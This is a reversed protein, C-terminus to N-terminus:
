SRSDPCDRPKPNTVKVLGRAAALAILPKSPPTLRVLKQLNNFLYRKFMKHEVVALARNDDVCSNGARESILHNQIAFHTFRSRLIPVAPQPFFPQHKVSSKLEHQSM